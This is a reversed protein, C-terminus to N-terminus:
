GITKHLKTQVCVECDKWGPASEGQTIELGDVNRALHSIAEQNAHGFMRHVEMGSVRLPKREERSPKPQYKAAYVSLAEPSPVRLV